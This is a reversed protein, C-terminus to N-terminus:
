TNGVVLSYEVSTRFDGSSGTIKLVHRGPRLPGFRVWLGCGVVRYTGPEWEFLNGAKPVFSFPVSEFREPTVPRGDLVAEGRAERMFERCDDPGESFLNVLPAVVPRGPPIACTRTFAGGLTGALFWVDAPQDRACEAGTKDAVPNTAAPFSGAWNWWRGQLVELSAPPSAPPSPKPAPPEASGGCGALVIACFVLVTGHRFM